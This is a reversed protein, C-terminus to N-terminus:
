EEFDEDPEAPTGEYLRTDTSGRPESEGEWEEAEEAEEGGEEEDEELDYRLLSEKTYPRVAEGAATPPFSPKGVQSPHQYTEKIIIRCAGDLISAVAAAYRNGGEMLRLLRSGMKPEVPGLVDGDVSEVMLVGDQAVLNVADGASLRKVLDPSLNKITTVGTRGMEEIFLQPDVRRATERPAADEERLAKLRDLNRRAIVNTSDVALARRYAERADGYRGVESLAKGLRNLADVDNPFIALIANNVQVADEWRSQMALQIAQEARQRRMRAREEAEYTTNM